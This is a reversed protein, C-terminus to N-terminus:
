FACCHRYTWSLGRKFGKGGFTIAVCFHVIDAANTTM